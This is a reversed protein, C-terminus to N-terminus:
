RVTAPRLTPHASRKGKITDITSEGSSTFAGENLTGFERAAGAGGLHRIEPIDQSRSLM